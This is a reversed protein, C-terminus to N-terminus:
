IGSKEKTVLVSIQLLFLIVNAHANKNKAKERPFIGAQKIENGNWVCRFGIVDSYKQFCLCWMKKTKFYGILYNRIRKTLDEINM